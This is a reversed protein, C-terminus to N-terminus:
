FLLLRPEYTAPWDALGASWNEPMEILTPQAYGAPAAYTFEWDIAALIDCEADLLVNSPHLDDCLLKILKGDVNLLLFFSRPLVV